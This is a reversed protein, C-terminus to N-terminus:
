SVILPKQWFIQNHELMDSRKKESLELAAQPVVEAAGPGQGARAQHGAAYYGRNGSALQDLRAAPRRSPEQRASNSIQVSPAAVAARSPLRGRLCRWAAREAPLM